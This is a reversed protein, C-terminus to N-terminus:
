YFQLVLTKIASAIHFACDRVELTNKQIAQKDDAEIAKQLNECEHQILINQRTLLKLTERSPDSANPPLNAYLAILDTVASRILEGHPAISQKQDEPVPQMARILEKLRRTVLDSRVKVEEGFPKGDGAMQYMSTTNRIDTNGKAVNPVLRREYMSAPRKITSQNSSDNSSGSEGNATGGEPLSLPEHETDPSSLSLDIRLPEDYVSNNSASSFKSKLQTNESSLMQVVNKLQNIESKYDNLQKRLTEMENHSNASRPPTHVIAQQAMPPVPAYDDDSAVPDYIPEDDSLNPDHGGQEFSGLLMSNNAYPLSQLSQHGAVPADMPRLNAMNQRRMADVLVDTLLGTFEARNFRALKQRGQNRTASLFPNAPLFPVTAHDANLTSTSWIAECERRDVEDYLDMVLEEFMKNPVLQLKGRAIKLQESIDAGNADPIIMHRGSAHDPKKGGLFTIIRDTVDYMADLLREAITNHNNARALELPTMGNGDLANVDAGYILLMEIQSAQGFKAAMHLPTSLKDEHYYNPDAGQVLFRLSTELNSTRVSAHLQRSLEQELCGASGNGDDDDQLSPKLVFTLNVHKAKIFDSKTPHLADKPTPKRWRPVHKGGTSNTSGDLLHHEWVSNAGHANLSNVFNLVSPEWNGQRLSKVISIHRGLSRHVSCCDACLLIGRNISAWSPDGAGCDGCVETQLRSKGRPMKSRTSITPTAPDSHDLDPPAIFLKRHAEIISSAFCM